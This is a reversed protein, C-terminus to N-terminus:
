ASYKATLEELRPVLENPSPLALMEARLAAARERFGPESLLRELGARVVPGTARDAHVVLAAGQVGARRALEPEDFDWPVTLQPVAHRAITLFTGPGAHNIVAACTPVLADLPVFPIARVNQPVRTLTGEKVTAVVEIDMTSLADVIDQTGAAYGAYRDTATVGLTLAVRPRGPPEWLWRPVVAAGGYPQYAMPVYHLDAEMRLSGPLQDISFQGTVMDEGFETGYRRAYPALWGAMPDDGDFQRFRSRAMGFVDISWLLRGHVAGCARAAIAGAYTTAEWLILDPQWHQAFAVLDTIMPFSDLKHWHEILDVYGARMADADVEAPDCVASRYPEPLGERQAEALDPYLGALRWTGRDRGVPVATLGAQTITAALSPQSAVRVDHGATRMAWALPVMPQFITKDSYTVFLVRM